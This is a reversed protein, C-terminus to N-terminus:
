HAHSFVRRSESNEPSIKMGARVDGCCRRATPADASMALGHQKLHSDSIPICMSEHAGSDPTLLALPGPCFGCPHGQPGSTKSKPSISQQVNCPAEDRCLGRQLGTEHPWGPLNGRCTKSPVLGVCSPFMPPSISGAARPKRSIWLDWIWESNRAM